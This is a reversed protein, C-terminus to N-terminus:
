KRYYFRSNYGMRPIIMTRDPMPRVEAEVPTFIQNPQRFQAYPM